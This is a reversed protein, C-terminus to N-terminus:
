AAPEGLPLEPVAARLESVALHNVYRQTTAISTHGLLRSIAVVNGGQRLSRVAYTHRLAHPSIRKAAIGAADARKRVLKAM